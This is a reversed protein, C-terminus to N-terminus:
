ECSDLRWSDAVWKGTEVWGEKGKFEKEPKLDVTTGYGPTPYNGLYKKKFAEAEEKSNFVKRDSITGM